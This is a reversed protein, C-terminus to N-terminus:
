TRAVLQDVNAFKIEPYIGVERLRGLHATQADEVPEPASALSGDASKAVPAAILLPKQHYLALWAEWQTYTPVDGAKLAAFLPPLRTELGVLQAAFNTAVFGRPTAGAKAGALHIVADCNRIYADLKSLTDVGLAGFDDQIAVDLNLSTLDHDLADRWAGFEDSVCSLFLKAM